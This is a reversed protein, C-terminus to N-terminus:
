RNGDRPIESEILIIESIIMQVNLFILDQHAMCHHSSTINKSSCPIALHLIQSNVSIISIPTIHKQLTKSPIKPQMAPYSTLAVPDRNAYEKAKEVSVIFILRHIMSVLYKEVLNPLTVIKELILLKYVM